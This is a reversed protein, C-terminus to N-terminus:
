KPFRADPLVKEVPQRPPAFDYFALFVGGAVLVVVAAIIAILALRGM